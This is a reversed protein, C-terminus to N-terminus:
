DVIAIIPGLKARADNRRLESSYLSSVTGDLYLADSCGLGDRFFSAFEHFSVPKESIAFITETGCIGVGNRILRSKSEPDFVPHIRGDLLLLPGSQTALVVDQAAAPYASTEVIHPGSRDIFFVGNPKLFFNGAGDDTNLPAIHLGDQVLLGVPSFDAHYMGANMAFRLRRHQKELAAELRRFSGYPRGDDDRLFIQLREHRTDVRVVTFRPDPAAGSASSLLGAFVCFLMRWWRPGPKSTQPRDLARKM